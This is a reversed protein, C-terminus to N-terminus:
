ISTYNHYLYTHLICNTWFIGFQTLTHIIIIGEKDPAQNEENMVPLDINIGADERTEEGVSPVGDIELMDDCRGSSGVSRDDNVRGSSESDSIVDDMVDDNRGAGCKREDGIQGTYQSWSVGYMKPYRENPFMENEEVVEVTPFDIEENRNSEKRSNEHHTSSVSEVSNIRDHIEAVITLVPMHQEQTINSQLAEHTPPPENSVHLSYNLPLSTLSLLSLTGPTGSQKIRCIYM